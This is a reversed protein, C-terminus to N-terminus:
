EDRGGALMELEDDTYHPRNDFDLHCGKCMLSYHDPNRQVDLLRNKSGRGMGKLKTPATHAWELMHRSGCRECRGGFQTLLRARLNDLYRRQTISSSASM